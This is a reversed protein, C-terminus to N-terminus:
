AKVSAPETRTLTFEAFDRGTDEYLYYALCGLAELEDRQDPFRSAVALTGTYGLDRALRAVRM